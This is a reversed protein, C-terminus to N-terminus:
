GEIDKAIAASPSAAQRVFVNVFSAASGVLLLGTAAWTMGLFQGGYSASVNSGKGHANILAVFEFAIVTAIISAISVTFFGLTLFGFEFLGQGNRPALSTWVQVLLAAGMAGIGMCYLVAMARSTTSFAHFDDSIVRPWELEPGHTSSAKPWAQMPDFSFLITRNSCSTVNRTVGASPDTTGLTGQCYSMLHVSYFDHSLTDTSGAIGTSGSPTYLTLLDADDLLNRQTGAFLCLLTLIFAIFGAVTPFLRKFDLM